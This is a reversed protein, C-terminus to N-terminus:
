RLLTVHGRREQRKGERDKLSVQWSYVGTAIGTGDWGRYPDTTTHILRGWRDFISLQFAEPDTVTTVVGFEDNIRDGNPTFCNPAYVAFADEVCVEVSSSAVCGGANEVELTVTYCGVEPYTFSVAPDDTSPVGDVGPDWSWTTIGSGTSTFSFVPDDILAVTPQVSIAPDPAPTVTIIDDLTVTGTCGDATTLNLTVGFSGASAFCHEPEAEDGASSGDGFSWSRVGDVTSEDTFTVCLPACGSDVDWSFAPEVADTVVVTIAGPDSECGNADTAVVEVVTTTAPAVTPGVPSWAFSYGGAGGSATAVLTTSAGECITVEDAIDVIVADPETIIVEVEASCGADDDVTVTYTGAALDTAAAANGGSPSWSYTFVGSGGTATVVASGDTLGNCSVDEHNASATITTADNVVTAEGQVPCMNPAQVLVTYTGAALGDITQTSAGGPDWDYTFPGSGGSINATISGSNPVCGVDTVDLELESIRVTRELTVPASCSSTMTFTIIYEGPGDYTHSANVGTATNAAGSAPDGFNWTGDEVCGANGTANFTITNGACTYNFAPTLPPAEGIYLDDIAVGDFTNCITGAGFIFRFKVPDNTPLDILCHAATVYGAIGGGSACGGSTSTGSWGQRPSALNLATINSSNFWNLTHCDAPDNVNGVNIWTTGGNSSYQLGVGDYNPETEWWISFSIWPFALGSIDFCPTELWSQQGDAYFSGTLGGVCWANTGSTAGSVTPHAPAGWAWDSNTGGPTWSPGAELDETFPFTTIITTCQASAMHRALIFLGLLFFRLTSHQSQKANM